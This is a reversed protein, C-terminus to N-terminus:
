YIHKFCAALFVFLIANSLHVLESVLGLVKSPFSKEIQATKQKPWEPILFTRISKKVLNQKQNYNSPFDDQNDRVNLLIGLLSFNKSSYRFPFLDTM